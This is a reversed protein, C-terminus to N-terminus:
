DHFTVRGHTPNSNLDALQVEEGLHLRNRLIAKPHTPSEEFHAFHLAEDLDGTLEYFRYEQSNYARLIHLPPIGLSALTRNLFHEEGTITHVM